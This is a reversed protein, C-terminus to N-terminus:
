GGCKGCDGNVIANMLLLSHLSHIWKSNQSFRNLKDRFPYLLKVIFGTEWRWRINLKCYSKRFSFYEELYDNFKTDHNVTREGNCIYKGESIEQALDELMIYILAANVQNKEYEPISKHGVMKYYNGKDQVTTYACLKEEIDFAGWVRINGAWHRIGNAVDKMDIKKNESFRYSNQAIMLVNGIEEAYDQAKIEKCEFNKLGKRIKTRTKSKVDEMQFPKDKIVYWWETKCESDWDTTWRVFLPIGDQIRWITGNEVPSLDPVEHPACASIVAHNYYEWGEINM